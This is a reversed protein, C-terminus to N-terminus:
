NTGGPLGHSSFTNVLPGGHLIIEFTKPVLPNSEEFSVEKDENGHTLNKSFNFGAVLHGNFLCAQNELRNVNLEFGHFLSPYPPDM